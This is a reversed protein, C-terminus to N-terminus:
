FLLYFVLYDFSSVYYYVFYLGTLALLLGLGFLSYWPDAFAALEILPGTTRRSIRTRTLALIVASNALVIFGMTRVTWAFGIKHLLQRAIIPFVVGGTATGSTMGAVAVARKKLFYTSVLAITPTFVLGNGLGQCIGQALLLQWYQNALSTMFLGLVQLSLGIVAIHRYYGGDMARGSFTGIFLTLFIQISGVWSITSLDEKLATTYYAQFLGFSNIYGWSNLAVLHGAVVQSWAVLGGDPPASIVQNPHGANNKLSQIAEISPKAPYERSSNLDITGISTAETISLTRYERKVESVLPDRTRRM